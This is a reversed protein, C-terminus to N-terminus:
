ILGAWQAIYYLVVFPILALAVNIVCMLVFAVLAMITQFFAAM